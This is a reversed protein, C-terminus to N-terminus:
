LKAECLSRMLIRNYVKIHQKINSFPVPNSTLQKMHKYLTDRNKNVHNVWSNDM